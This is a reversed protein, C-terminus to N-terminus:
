IIPVVLKRLDFSCITKGTVDKWQHKPFSDELLFKKPVVSDGHSLGVKKCLFNYQSKLQKYANIAEIRKRESLLVLEQCYKQKDENLDEGSCQVGCPALRREEEKVRLLTTPMEIDACPEVISGLLQKESIGAERAKKTEKPLGKEEACDDVKSARSRVPIPEDRRQSDILWKEKYPGESGSLDEKLSNVRFQNGRAVEADKKRLDELLGVIAAELCKHKALLPKEEEHGTLQRARDKSSADDSKVLQILKDQNHIGENIEEIKQKLDHQLNNVQLQRSNLKRNLEEVVEEKEKALQVLEKRLFQGEMVAQQRELKFRDIQLLLDSEHEKLSRSKSLFDPFLQHCFIYEIQSIRDKVEQITAVLITSLRSVDKQDICGPTERQSGM